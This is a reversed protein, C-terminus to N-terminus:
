SGQSVTGNSGLTIWRTGDCLLCVYNGAVGALTISVGGTQVTGGRVITESANPDITLLNTGTNYFVVAKGDYGAAAPLAYTTTTNAYVEYVPATWTISGATTDPSAHSGLRAAVLIGQLTSLLSRGTVGGSADWFLVSDALVPTVTSVDVIAPAGGIISWTTGNSQWYTTTTASAAATYSIGTGAGAGTVTHAATDTNVVDVRIQQGAVGTDSPTLTLNAGNTAVSRIATTDITGANTTIVIDVPPFVFAGEFTNIGTFDNNAAAIVDGSGAGGGGIYIIKPRTSM